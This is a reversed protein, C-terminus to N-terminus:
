MVEENLRARENRLRKNWVKGLFKITEEDMRVNTVEYGKMGNMKDANGMEREWNRKWINRDM